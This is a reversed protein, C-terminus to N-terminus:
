LPTSIFFMKVLCGFAVIEVVIFFLLPVLSFWKDPNRFSWCPALCLLAVICMSHLDQGGYVSQVSGNRLVEVHKWERFFRSLRVRLVAGVEVSDYLSKSVSKEYNEKGHAKLNWSRNRGTRAFKEAVTVSDIGVAPAFIDVVGLVFVVVGFVAFCRVGRIIALDLTM